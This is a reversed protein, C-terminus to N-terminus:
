LHAGCAGLMLTKKKSLSPGERGITQGAAARDQGQVGEQKSYNALEQYPDPNQRFSGRDGEAQM